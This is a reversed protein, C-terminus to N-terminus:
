ILKTVFSNDRKKGIQILRLIKLQQPLFYSGLAEFLLGDSDVATGLGVVSKSLKIDKLLNIRESKALMKKLIKNDNLLKKNEIRLKACELELLGFKEAGDFPHPESVPTITVKLFDTYFQNRIDKRKSIRADFSKIKKYIPKKIHHILKTGKSHEPEIVQHQNKEKSREIKYKSELDSAPSYFDILTKHLSM